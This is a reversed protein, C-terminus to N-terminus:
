SVVDIAKHLEHEKYYKHKGTKFLELVEIATKLDM